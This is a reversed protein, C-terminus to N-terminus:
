GGVPVAAEVHETVAAPSAFGEIGRAADGIMGAGEGGAEGGGGGIGAVGGGLFGSGAEGEVALFEEIEAEAGEVDGGLGGFHEDAGVVAGGGGAGVVVAAGLAAALAEGEGLAEGIVEIADDGAGGREEVRAVHDSAGIPHLALVGIGKGRCFEREEGFRDVGLAVGGVSQHVAEDCGRRAAVELGGAIEVAAGGGLGAGGTEGGGFDGGDFADVGVDGALAFAEEGAPGNTGFDDDGTCGAAPETLGNATGIAAADPGVVGLLEEAVDGGGTRIWGLGDAGEVDVFVDRAEVEDVLGDVGGVGVEGGEALAAPFEEHVEAPGIRLQIGPGGDFVVFLNGGSHPFGGRVEGAEEHDGAHEVTTAAHAGVGEIGDGREDLPDFCADSGLGYLGALDGASFGDACAGEARM